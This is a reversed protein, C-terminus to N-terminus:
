DENIWVDFGHERLRRRVSEKQLDSPKELELSIRVLYALEQAGRGTLAALASAVNRESMGGEEALIAVLPHFEADELGSPYAARLMEITSHLEAPEASM